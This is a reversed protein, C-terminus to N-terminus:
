TPTQFLISRLVQVKALATVSGNGIVTAFTPTLMIGAADRM